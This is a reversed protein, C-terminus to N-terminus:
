LSQMQDILQWRTEAEEQAIKQIAYGVHVLVFDGLELSQDLLLFIDVDREIGHRFCRATTGSISIVKMPIGLCM